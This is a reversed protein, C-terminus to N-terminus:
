RDCTPIQLQQGVRIVYRPARIRNLAAIEGLSACPFRAAIRHLTDGSRVTYPIMVPEEPYNAEHLERAHALLQGELCRAEYVRAVAVPVEIQQGAELREAPTVRPNLNRLTRFWGDRNGAQGLCVTLESLSADRKLVLRTTTVDPAPFELRYEEPHLFLWAAALIRPVYERTEQPFSYYVRRDWFSAGGHRRDVSRARNEGGNYAALAKELSNNFERFYENLYAVNARVSAEPDLRLDFGDVEVLGYRHGTGRMFQLPGAAGARSFAHVKGRSETAIMGFLLAEPLGAQEYVPAMRSRLFQYNYYAEMLGPRLWTLWDDLAARVPGNLEILERLDTGRLLSAARDLQPMAGRFPATGPEREASREELGATLADLAARQARLARGQAGFLLDYGAVFRGLDCGALAGCAEAARQLRGRLEALVEEEAWAEGAAILELRAEFEGTVAALEEYLAAIQEVQGAPAHGPVVEGVPTVSVVRVAQQGATSPGCGALALAVAAVAQWRWSGNAM